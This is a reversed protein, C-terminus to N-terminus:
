HRVMRRLLLQALGLAGYAIAPAAAPVGGRSALLGATLLLGFAGRAAGSSLVVHDYRTTDYAAWLTVAALAAWLAAAAARYFADPRHALLGLSAAGLMETFLSAGWVLDFLAGVVLSLRLLRVLRSRRSYSHVM